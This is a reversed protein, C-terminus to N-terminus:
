FKLNPFEKYTEPIIKQMKLGLKKMDQFDKPLKDKSNCNPCKVTQFGVPWGYSPCKKRKRVLYINNCM